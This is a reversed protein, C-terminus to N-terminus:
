CHLTEIARVLQQVRFPKPLLGAGALRATDVWRENSIVVVPITAFRPDELQAARFAYGDMVPMKLDLLILEPMVGEHLWALADAGNECAVVDYGQDELFESLLARVDPDDDILLVHTTTRATTRLM